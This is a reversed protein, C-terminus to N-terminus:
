KGEYDEARISDENKGVHIDSVDVTPIRELVKM